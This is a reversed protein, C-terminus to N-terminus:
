IDSPAQAEMDSSTRAPNDTGTQKLAHACGLGVLILSCLAVITIIINAKSHKTEHEFHLSQMIDGM